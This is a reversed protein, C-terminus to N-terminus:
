SVWELFESMEVVRKEQMAIQAAIGMLVAMRGDAMSVEPADREGRVLRRSSTSGNSGRRRGNGSKGKTSKSDDDPGEACECTQGRGARYTQWARQMRAIQGPTFSSM